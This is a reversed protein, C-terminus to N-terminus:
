ARRRRMSATCAAPRSVCVSGAEQETREPHPVRPATARILPGAPCGGTLHGNTQSRQRGTSTQTGTPGISGPWDMIIGQASHPRQRGQTINLATGAGSVFNISAGSTSRDPASSTHEADRRPRSYLWPGGRSIQFSNPDLDPSDSPPFYPCGGGPHGVPLLSNNRACM